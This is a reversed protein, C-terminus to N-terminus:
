EVKPERRWGDLDNGADGMGGDDINTWITRTEELNMSETVTRGGRKAAGM